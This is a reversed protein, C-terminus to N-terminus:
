KSLTKNPYLTPNQPMSHPVKTEKEREKTGTMENEHPASLFWECMRSGLWTIDYIFLCALLIAEIKFSWILYCAWFGDLYLM